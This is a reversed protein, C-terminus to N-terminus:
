PRCTGCPEYGADLAEKKSEFWVQNSTKTRQGQSCDPYHFKKSNANGLFKNPSPNDEQSAEPSEETIGWLGRGNERADRQAAEFVEVYKVNPPYTAM